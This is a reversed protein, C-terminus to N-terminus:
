TPISNRSQLLASDSKTGLRPKPEIYMQNDVIEIVVVEDACPAM